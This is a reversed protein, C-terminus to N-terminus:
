TVIQINNGWEFVSYYKSGFYILADNNWYKHYGNSYTPIIVKRTFLSKKLLKINNTSILLICYDKNFPNEIIQQLCYEGICTDGYKFGSDNYQIKAHKRIKRIFDCDSLLDDIIVMNFDYNKNLESFQYIPYNVYIKSVFGNCSPMSYNQAISYIDSNNKVPIVIRMKDRYVNLLGTGKYSKQENSALVINISKSSINKYTYEKKNVVISFQNRSIQPPITLTFGIVNACEIVIKKPSVINAIIEARDKGYEIGHLQIWYSKLHCNRTTSFMLM